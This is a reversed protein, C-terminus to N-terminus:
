AAPGIPSVSHKARQEQVLRLIEQQTLKRRSAPEIAEDERIERMLQDFDFLPQSVAPSVSQPESM